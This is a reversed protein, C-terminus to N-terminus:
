IKAIIGVVSLGLLFSPQDTQDMQNIQNMQNIRNIQTLWVFLVLWICWIVTKTYSSAASNAFHLTM